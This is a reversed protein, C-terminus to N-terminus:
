ETVEVVTDPCVAAPDGLEPNNYRATAAAHAACGLEHRADKNRNLWDVYDNFAIHGHGHSDMESWVTEMPKTAGGAKLSEYMATFESKDIKGDDDADFVTTPLGM